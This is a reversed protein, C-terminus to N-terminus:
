VIIGLNTFIIKIIRMFYKIISEFILMIAAFSKNFFNIYTIILKLLHFEHM